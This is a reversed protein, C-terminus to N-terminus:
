AAVRRVTREVILAIDCQRRHAARRVLDALYVAWNLLDAKPSVGTLPLPEDGKEMGAEDLIAKRVAKMTALAEAPGAKGLRMWATMGLELALDPCPGAVETVGRLLTPALQTTSEEM